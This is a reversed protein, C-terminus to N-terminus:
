TIQASLVCLGCARLGVISLWVGDLIVFCFM